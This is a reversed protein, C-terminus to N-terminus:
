RSVTEAFCWKKRGKYKSASWVWWDDVSYLKKPSFFCWFVNESISNSVFVQSSLSAFSFWVIFLWQHTQLDIEIKNPKDYNVINSLQGIHDISYFNSPLFRFPSIGWLVELGLLPALVLWLFYCKFIYSNSIGLTILSLAWAWGM